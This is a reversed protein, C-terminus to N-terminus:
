KKSFKSITLSSFSILQFFQVFLYNYRILVIFPLNRDGHFEQEVQEAAQEVVNGGTSDDDLAPDDPQVGMFNGAGESMEEPADECDSGDPPTDYGDDNAPDDGDMAIEAGEQGEMAPAHEDYSVILSPWQSWSHLEGNAVAEDVEQLVQDRVKPMDLEDWFVKNRRSIMHDESGSLDDSLANEKFAKRAIAEHPVLGWSHHAREMITQRSTSPMKRSRRLQIMNDHIEAARLERELPAHAHTDLM